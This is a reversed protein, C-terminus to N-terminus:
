ARRAAEELAAWEAREDDIVLVDLSFRATRVERGERLLVALGCLKTFARPHHCWIVNALFGAGRDCAERYTEDKTMRGLPKVTGTM